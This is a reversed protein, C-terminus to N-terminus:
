KGSRLDWAPPPIPIGAAPPKAQRALVLARELPSIDAEPQRGTMVPSALDPVDAVDFDTLEGASAEAQGALRWAHNEIMGDVVRRVHRANGTHPGLLAAYREELVSFAAGALSYGAEAAMKAAIRALEGPRYGPFELIYTFRDRLGPNSALFREMERPYGAAIVITDDRYDDMLKVLTSIAERGFDRDSLDAPALSYAEDIFLVGGRARMFADATLRATQGVWQGVLDARSVEVLHGQALAGQAALYQGVLRAMMTKGTGPAGLFIMSGISFETPIGRAARRRTLEIRASIADLVRKVGDLGPLAGLEATLLSLQREDRQGGGMALPSRGLHPDLDAVTLTVLAAPEAALDPLSREILRDRMSEFVERARWGNGEHAWQMRAGFFEGLATSTGPELTFGQASAQISVIEALEFASYNPFHVTGDFRQRLAINAGLFREVGAAEGAIVIIAGGPYEDMFDVLPEVMASEVEAVHDILLLGDLAQELLEPVGAPNRRALDTQRVVNVVGKRLFGLEYGLRAFIDAVTSKGTGPPGSFVFNQATLQLDLGRARANELYHWRAVIREIEAKVERLGVLARLEDHASSV